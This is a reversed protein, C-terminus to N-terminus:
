GEIWGKTRSAPAPVHGGPTGSTLSFRKEFHPLAWPCAPRGRLPRARLSPGPLPARLTGPPPARDEAHGPRSKKLTGSMGLDRPRPSFFNLDLFGGPRRPAQPAPRLGLAAASPHKFTPERPGATPWTGPAWGPRFSELDLLDGPGRPAQSAPRLGLAAASPHKVTPERPGVSRRPAGPPGRLHDGPPPARLGPLSSWLHDRAAGPPGQRRGSSGLGPKPAEPGARPTRPPGRRSWPTGPRSTGDPSGTQAPATGRPGGRASSRGNSHM